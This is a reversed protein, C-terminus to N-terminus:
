RTVKEWRVTEARGSLLNGSTHQRVDRKLLMKALFIVLSLFGYAGFLFLAWRLLFLLYHMKVEVRTQWSTDNGGRSIVAV